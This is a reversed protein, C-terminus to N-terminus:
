INSSSKPLKTHTTDVFRISDLLMTNVFSIILKVKLSIELVVGMRFLECFLGSLHPM